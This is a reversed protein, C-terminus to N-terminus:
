GTWNEDSKGARTRNQNGIRQLYPLPPEMEIANDFATEVINAVDIYADNNAQETIADNTLEVAKALRRDGVEEDFKRFGLIGVKSKKKIKKPLKASEIALNELAIQLSTNSEELDEPSLVSVKNIDGVVETTSIYDPNEISM